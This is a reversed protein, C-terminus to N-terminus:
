VSLPRKRFDSKRLGWKRMYQVIASLAFDHKFSLISTLDSEVIWQKKNDINKQEAYNNAWTTRNYMRISPTVTLRGFSLSSLIQMGFDHVSGLNCEQTRFISNEDLLTLKNIVNSGSEYFLRSSIYNSKFRLAYEM